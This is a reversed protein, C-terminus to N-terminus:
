LRYKNWYITIKIGQKINGLFKIHDVIPLTVVLMKLKANNIQFTADTTFGEPFSSYTSQCPRCCKKINCFNCLRGVM